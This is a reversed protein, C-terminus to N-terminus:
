DDEFTYNPDYSDIVLDMVDNLIEELCNEFSEDFDDDSSYNFMYLALEESTLYEVAGLDLNSEGGTCENYYKETEMKFEDSAEISIYDHINATCTVYDIIESMLYDYSLGEDKYEEYSEKCYQSCDERFSAINIHEM